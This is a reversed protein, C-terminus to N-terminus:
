PVVVVKNVEQLPIRLRREVAAIGPGKTRSICCKRCKPRTAGIKGLSISSTM